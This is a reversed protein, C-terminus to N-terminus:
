ALFDSNPENYFNHQRSRMKSVTCVNFSGYSKDRTGTLYVVARDKLLHGYAELADPFVTINKLVGTEDQAMLFMMKQGTTKGKKIINERVSLIEVGLVITGVREKNNAFMYCTCNIEIDDYDEVYTTTVAVGLYHQESETKSNGTDELSIPPRNLVLILDKIKATRNKNAAGGGAKKPVSLNDLLTPFDRGKYNNKCWEKEKDTLQQYIGYEYKMRARPVNLYDLAGCGILAEFNTKVIEDSLFLLTEIWTWNEQSRGIKLISNTMGVLLRDLNSEGFSRVSEYGFYITKDRAEFSRNLNRLDPPRIDIGGLRADTVLEELEQQPDIKLHSKSLWSIFFEFPHNAKIYATYYGLLAYAISHAKNFSYRQSAEINQFLVDAVEQTVINLKTVGEMFNIKVKAMLEPKKKGAAKRLEDAQKLDFGALVKCIEMAQEQYVILGYTNQLISELSPHPYSVEELGAKRDVYHQTVTKEDIFAELSGPRIVAIIDSLQEINKPKIKKCFSRGLPSELQFIGKTCGEQLLEFTKQDNLPINELTLM